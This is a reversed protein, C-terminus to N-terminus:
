AEGEEEIESESAVARESEAVATQIMETNVLGRVREREDVVCVNVYDAVLM